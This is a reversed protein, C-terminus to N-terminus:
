CIVNYHEYNREGLNITQKEVGMAAMPGIWRGVFVVEFITSINNRENKERNEVTSSVGGYM